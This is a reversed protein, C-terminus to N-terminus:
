SALEKKNNKVRTQGLDARDAATRGALSGIGDYGNSKFKVDADGSAYKGELFANIKETPDILALEGASDTNKNIEELRDEIRWAYSQFFSAKFAQQKNRPMAQGGYYEDREARLAKNYENWLQLLLTNFMIEVFAVDNKYGVIDAFECIEHFRTKTWRGHVMKYKPRQFTVVKCRNNRAISRLLSFREEYTSSDRSLKTRKIIPEEDAKRFDSQFLRAQEIAYTTMMEQARSMALEKEEPTGGKEALALLKQIKAIVKDEDFERNQESM